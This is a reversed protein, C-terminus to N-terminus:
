HVQASNTYKSIPFEVQVFIHFKVQYVSRLTLRAATKATRDCVVTRSICSFPLLYYKKFFGVVGGAKYMSQMTQVPASPASSVTQTALPSKPLITSNQQKKSPM